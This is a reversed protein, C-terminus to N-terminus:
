RYLLPSNRISEQCKKSGLVVQNCSSTAWFNLAMLLREEVPKLRFERDHRLGSELKTQLISKEAKWQQDTLFDSVYLDKHFLTLGRTDTLLQQLKSAAQREELPLQPRYRKSILSRTPKLRDDTYKVDNLVNDTLYQNVQKKSLQTEKVVQDYVLCEGAVVQYLLYASSLYAPVTALHYRLNPGGMLAM